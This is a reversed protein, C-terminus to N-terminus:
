ILMLLLLYWDVPVSEDTLVLLIETVVGLAKM